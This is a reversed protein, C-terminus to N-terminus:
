PMPGADRTAHVVGPRGNADPPAQALQTENQKTGRTRRNSLLVGRCPGQRLFGGLRQLAVAGQWDLYTAHVRRQSVPSLFGRVNAPPVSRRTGGLATRPLAHTGHLERFSGNQGM